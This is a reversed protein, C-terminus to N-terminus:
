FKEKNYWPILTHLKILGQNQNILYKKLVLHCNLMSTGETFGLVQNDDTM